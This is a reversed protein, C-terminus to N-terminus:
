CSDTTPDEEMTAAYNQGSHEEWLPIEEEVICCTKSPEQFPTTTCTTLRQELATSPLFPMIEEWNPSIEEEVLCGGHLGKTSSPRPEPQAAEYWNQDSSPSHDSSGGPILSLSALGL